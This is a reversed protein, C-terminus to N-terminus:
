KGDDIKKLYLKDDKIEVGFYDKFAADGLIAKQGDDVMKCRVNQFALGGIEMEKVKFSKSTLKTGDTLKIKERGESFDEISIDKSRILQEVTSQPVTIKTSEPDYEFKIRKRGVMGDIYYKDRSKTLQLIDYTEALKKAEAEAIQRRKEEEIEGIEKDYEGQHNRIYNIREAIIVKSYIPGGAIAVDNTDQVEANSWKFEYKCNVVKVTTRRNAQHQEESCPTIKRDECACENTLQSEGYGRAELRFPNIGNAIIYAVASDARRQSLDINYAYTARCDTHSGLEVSMKPYRKLTAILGDLVEKSEQRLFAKDLDYYIPLVFVDDCQNELCFDKVFETSQDIGETSVFKPKSDYYYDERKSAFVEYKVGPRLPTEYYGRADTMLRIKTSDLDNTIVVLSNELPLKSDCDTVTGKLIIVLPTMSFEYIDDDGARARDSSFFGHEKDTDIVIGFDDAPSNMPCEMNIPTEWDTPGEGTPKSYLIDLGGITVHGDSSFYLTGDEHVYPFLENGKTNIKPGLNIADGWTRGRKVFNVVYIDKTYEFKEKGENQTSGPMDSVFYLKKGDESLAPHGCNFSDSCFPLPTPDLEWEKGRKKAEYIKCTTEEGKLGSCQTLYMTSYRSDFTVAGENWETFGEVLTPAQWKERGRKGTLETIYLDEFNRGTWKHQKKSEGDERDSTFMISKQKRDAYRPVRDDVRTENAVKFAEIVYRTKKDACKLAMECGQIRLDVDLDSPNMKKYEKFKNLAETYQEQEMLMEAERYFVIPDKMGYRIARAYYKLADKSNHTFRYGEAARFCALQQDEKTIDKGKIAQKYKDSAVAYEHLEFSKNADEMTVKCGSFASAFIIALIIIKRDKLRMYHSLKPHNYDGFILMFLAKEL